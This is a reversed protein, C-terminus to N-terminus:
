SPQAKKGGKAPFHVPWRQIGEAKVNRVKEKPYDDRDGLRKPDWDLNKFDSYDSVVVKADSTVPYPLWKELVTKGNVRLNHATMVIITDTYKNDAGIGYDDLVLRGGAPLRFAEFANRGFSMSVRVTKGGKGDYRAGSFPRDRGDKNPFIGNKPLPQDGWRPLIFWVPKDQRNTLTLRVLVWKVPPKGKGRSQYIARVPPDAGRAVEPPFVALVGTGLIWVFPPIRKQWM